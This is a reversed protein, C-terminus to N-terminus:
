SSTDAPAGGANRRRVLAAIDCQGRGEAAAAQLHSVFAATLRPQLGALEFQRCHQALTPAIMAITAEDGDFRRAAIRAASERIRDQLVGSTGLAFDRFKEIPIGYSDAVAALELFLAVSGLMYLGATIYVAVSARPDAGLYQLGGGLAALMDRHAAFADEDGSYLISTDPKGIDNPFVMIGGALFRGHHRHVWVGQDAAEEPLGSTLQVLTRGAIADSVGPADLLAVATSYDLLCMISVPAARIAATPSDALAAGRAVLADARAATRNWVVVRRGSRLQADALAHGMNGLGLIAVDASAPQTSM